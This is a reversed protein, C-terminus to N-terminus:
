NLQRYALGRGGGRGALALRGMRRPTNWMGGRSSVIQGVRRRSRSSNKKKTRKDSVQYDANGHIEQTQRISPNYVEFVECVGLSHALVQDQMEAATASAVATGPRNHPQLLAFAGPPHPCIKGSFATPFDLRRLSIIAHMLWSARHRM